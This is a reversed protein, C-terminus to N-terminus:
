KKKMRTNLQEIQANIEDIRQFSREKEKLLQNKEKMLDQITNDCAEMIQFGRNVKAIILARLNSEELFNIYFDKYFSWFCKKQDDNLDDFFKKTNESFQQQM